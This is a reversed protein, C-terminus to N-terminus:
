SAQLWPTIKTTKSDFWIATRTKTALSRRAANRTRTKGFNDTTATLSIMETSSASQFHNVWTENGYSIVARSDLPVRNFVITTMRWLPVAFWFSTKRANEFAKTTPRSLPWSDRETRTQRKFRKATRNRRSSVTKVKQTNNKRMSIRDLLLSYSTHYLNLVLDWM